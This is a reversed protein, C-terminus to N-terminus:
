RANKTAIAIRDVMKGNRYVVCWDELHEEDFIYIIRNRRDSSSERAKLIHTNKFYQSLKYNPKYDEGVLLYDSMIGNAKALSTDPQISECDTYFESLDTPLELERQNVRSLKSIMSQVNAIEKAYDDRGMRDLISEMERAVRTAERQKNSWYLAVAKTEMHNLYNLSREGFERKSQKLAEDIYRVSDYDKGRNMKSYAIHSFVIAQQASDLRRFTSSATLELLAEEANLYRRDDFLDLGADMASVPDTIPASALAQSNLSVICICAITAFSFAGQACKRIIGM